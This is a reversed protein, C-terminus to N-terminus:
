KNSRSCFCDCFRYVLARELGTIAIAAEMRGAGDIERKLDRKSREKMGQRALDERVKAERERLGEREAEAKEELVSKTISPISVLQSSM